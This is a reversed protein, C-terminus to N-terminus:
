HPRFLNDMTISIDRVLDEVPTIIPKFDTRDAPTFLRLEGPHCKVELREGLRVPEGDIHAPGPEAREIVAESVRLTDILRNSAILGTMLDLGLMATQIISAKRILIIDLLGDTLSAQPAIYANNGYQSANCVAVLFADDTIVRGDVHLTYREHKFRVFEEIASRIYSIKGRHGSAAFRDSVAADYGVGFTCFFPNSNVTGYDCDDIHGATIVSLSQLPDIPIGLHRALGNGSGAPISGMPMGTGRLARATENVTGDGGCALVADFGEEKAMQALRTADGRCTTAAVTVAIDAAALAESIRQPLGDTSATGSIPNVILKMRKM